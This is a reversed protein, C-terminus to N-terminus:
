SKDKNPVLHSLEANTPKGEIQLETVYVRHWRGDIQIVHIPGYLCKRHAALQKAENKTWVIDHILRRHYKSTGMAFVEYAVRPRVRNKEFCEQIHNLLSLVDRKDDTDPRALWKDRIALLSHINLM